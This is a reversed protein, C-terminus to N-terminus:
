WITKGAKEIFIELKGDSNIVTKFKLISDDVYFLTDINKDSPFSLLSANPKSEIKLKKLKDDVNSSMNEDKM